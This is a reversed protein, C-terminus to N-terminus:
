SRPTTASRREILSPWQTGPAPAPFAGRTGVLLLEHKNRFWSGAGPKDKAWIAQSKCAFGWARMVNLAQPLMPATAWLFLVCADAARTRGAWWCGRSARVARM